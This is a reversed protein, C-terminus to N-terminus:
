SDVDKSEKLQEVVQLGKTPDNPNRPNALINESEKNRDFAFKLQFM